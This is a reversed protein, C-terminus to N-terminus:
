RGFATEDEQRPSPDHLSCEVKETSKAAEGTVVFSESGGEIAPMPDSRQSQKQLM